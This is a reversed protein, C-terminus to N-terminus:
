SFLGSLLAGGLAYPGLGAAGTAGFAQGIGLGAGAGGLLSAGVNGGYTPQTASGSQSGFNLGGQLLSNYAALSNWSQNEDFNHRAIDANLQEYDKAEIASGVNIMQNAPDYALANTQPALAQYRAMNERENSYDQYRMKASVDAVSDSVTDAMAESGYRGGIAFKSAVQNSVDNAVSNVASDLYPNNNLYGGSLTKNADSNATYPLQSNLAVAEKNALGLNTQASYPLYTNNPFYEPQENNYLRSGESYVERLNGQVGSWPDINKETVTQTTGGGGGGGFSMKVPLFFWKILDNIMSRCGM